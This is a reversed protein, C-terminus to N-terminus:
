GAVMKSQYCKRLSEMLAEMKVPKSVYDNMGSALYQEMDGQLANATLAIIHPQYSVEGSQRVWETAEIGDVEPMQVDMLIVDYAQRLLAEKVELGNAVIDARYGAKSLMRIAVKQNVLNDEALLIKLPHTEGLTRDFTNDPQRSFLEVKTGSFANAIVQFLQTPKIPKTLFGATYPLNKSEKDGLSSLMIIPLKPYTANLKKALQRGDMEPMNVDLLAMDVAREAMIELAQEGSQCTIANISWNDLYRSVIHINTAHDDVVLISKGRVTSLIAEHEVEVLDEAKPANISFSFVSGEGPIGSSEVSITGGMLETLQKSIALGLGTGGFKRSNGSEVQSFSQFLRSQLEQPIGIGTDRISFVWECIDGPQCDSGGELNLFVEGRETFKVANNLLNVLIQRLRTADGIIAAPQGKIEYGLELQKQSACQAILDLSEEICDRLSFRQEELEMKGAEIKSFDLIDNIITLLSDGSNRITEVCETQELNLPTDLLLSTMGIVGNMPTRIEHSMNALFEGKAITAAEAEILARRLQEQDKKRQTIDHITGVLYTQGGPLALLGKQTVIIRQHGFRDTQVEETQTTKGTRFVEVDGQRFVEAEAKPSFDADTKGIIEEEPHGIVDCLAQNVSVFRFQDDKVFIPDPIANIVQSFFLNSEQLRNEMNKRESIESSLSQNLKENTEQRISLDAQLQELREAYKLVFAALALFVLLTFFTLVHVVLGNQIMWDSEVIADYMTIALGTAFVVALVRVLVEMSHNSFIIGALITLLIFSILGIGDFAVNTAIMSIIIGSLALWAAAQDHGKARAIEGLGILATLAAVSVVHLVFQPPSWFITVVVLIALYVLNSFLLFRFPRQIRLQGAM